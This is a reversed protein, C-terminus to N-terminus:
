KCDSLTLHMNFLYEQLQITTLCQMDSIQSRYKRATSIICNVNAIGVTCTSLICFRKCLFHGNYFFDVFCPSVFAKASFQFVIFSGSDGWVDSEKFYIWILFFFFSTHKAMATVLSLNLLFISLLIVIEGRGQSPRTHPNARGPMAAQLPVEAKWFKKRKQYGLWVGRLCQLSWLSGTKRNEEERKAQQEREWLRGPDPRRAIGGRQATASCGGVAMPRQSPLLRM